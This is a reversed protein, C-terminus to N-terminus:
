FILPATPTPPSAKVKVMGFHFEVIGFETIISIGFNQFELIGLNGFEAFIFSRYYLIIFFDFHGMPGQPGPREPEVFNFDCFGCICVESNISIGFDQFEWFGSNQFESIGLKDFNPFDSVRFIRFNLSPGLSM